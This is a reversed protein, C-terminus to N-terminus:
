LGAMWCSLESLWQNGAMWMSDISHVGKITLRPEPKILVPTDTCAVMWPTLTRAGVVQTPPQTRFDTPPAQASAPVAALLVATAVMGIRM